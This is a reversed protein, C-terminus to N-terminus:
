LLPKMSLHLWLAQPFTVSNGILTAEDCLMAVALKRVKPALAKLGLM